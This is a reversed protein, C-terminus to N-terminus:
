SVHPLDPVYVVFVEIMDILTPTIAAFITAESKNTQDSFYVFSPSQSFQVGLCTSPIEAPIKLWSTWITSMPESEMLRKCFLQQQPGVAHLFIVGRNARAVGKRPM